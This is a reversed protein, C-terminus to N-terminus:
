VEALRTDTRLLRGGSRRNYTIAGATVVGERTYHTITMAESAGPEGKEFAVKPPYPLEYEPDKFRGKPPYWVWADSIFVAADARFLMLAMPISMAVKAPDISYTMAIMEGDREILIRTPYEPKGAATQDRLDEWAMELLRKPTM